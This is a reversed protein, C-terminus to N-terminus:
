YVICKKKQFENSESLRDIEKIKAKVRFEWNEYQGLSGDFTPIGSRTTEQPTHGRGAAYATAKLGDLSAM